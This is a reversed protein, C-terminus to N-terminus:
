PNAFRTKLPPQAVTVGLARGNELASLGIRVSPQAMVVGRTLDDVFHPLGIRLPPGGVMIGSRFDEGVVPLIIRLPPQAMTIGAGGGTFSFGSLGIKVTPSGAFRMAPRSNRDLPDSGGTVESEDNWGDGDSDAMLPNTGILIERKDPLGDGDRDLDGDLVNPNISRPNRPDSGLLIEASNSLGDGDFDEDGDAVGNNNSDSRNPNLGLLVEIEDPVGDRDTDTRDFVRFRWRYAVTMPNGVRDSIPPGAVGQYDGAPLAATFQLLVTQIVEQYSMTGGSVDSDDATGFLGDAGARIVRFSAENLTAPLIPESFAAVISDVSGSISGSLPQTRTVRPPTADAVLAIVHETSFATNGGTDSARASLTFTNKQESRQPSIFRFEFPFNGDAAVKQGDVYFEVNRVQVDDTVKAEVWVLKGEEVRGPNLPFGATLTIAPAQGRNDFALYNVVQLGAPSDAVYALGNYIAVARAVGPTPFTTIFVDNSQPNSVNYLSIDNPGDATSNPNVAAVGLGSGNPAIQRWGFQPTNGARLLVPQAATGLDFTNYGNGHVVYLVGGGAAMRRSGGTVTPSNVSSVLRLEGDALSISHLANATVAYLYDGSLILDEVSGALNVIRGLETGSTMDVAVIQRATLGVFAVNGAVAISQALGGLNVQRVISAAPPDTMDIIALGLGGDAVAILNGSIAVRRADGPTDVQAIIAPNMGSFVNFVSVGGESAAVVVLDNGAVIDVATGNIAATGVIGTRAARGSLPDTGQRVEAGDGIGDGDTDRNDPATGMIFEGDAGLGDGDADPSLDTGLQIPPLQGTSGNAPSTIDIYGTLLTTAQLVWIRFDTQPALILRGFAVGATGTTGRQVVNGTGRDQVLYYHLGTQRVPVQAANRVPLTTLSLLVLFRVAGQVFREHLRISANAETRM